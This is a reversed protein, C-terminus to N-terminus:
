PRIRVRSTTLLNIKEELESILKKSIRNLEEMNSLENELEHIKNKMISINYESIEGENFLDDILVHYYTALIQLHDIRVQSAGSEIRNYSSQSIGLVKSIEKQSLNRQSRLKILNLSITKATRKNM